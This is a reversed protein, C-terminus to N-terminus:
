IKADLGERKEKLVPFVTTLDRPKELTKVATKTIYFGKERAVGELSGRLVSLPRVFNEPCYLDISIDNNKVSIELEFLGKNEIDFTLFIHTNGKENPSSNEGDKDIWLEGFSRMDEVQMPMVYHLLPTYVGPATLMNQILANPDVLGLYKLNSNGLSKAMFDVLTELSTPKQFTVDPSNSLMTLIKNMNEALLLKSKEDTVSSLILRMRAILSNLDKTESFSKLLNNLEQMGDEPVVFSLLENIMRIGDPVNVAIDEAMGQLLTVMEGSSLEAFNINPNNKVAESVQFALKDNNIYNKNDALLADKSPFPVDSGEVFKDFILSIQERIMPDSIESLINQFSTKLPNTNDNFRSLNYKILSVINNTKETAILSKLVSDLLELTQGKLGEFNVTANKSSFLEALKSLSESLTTSKSLLESLYSLNSAVSNLIEEQAALTAYNRLFSVVSNQMDTSGNQHLTKLVDFMEGNFSTIGKEQAILDDAISDGTLFINKVFENFQKSSADLGDDAVFTSSGSFIQKLLNLTFSSDETIKINNALMGRGDSEFSNGTQRFEESRSNTKIVQTIDSINFVTNTQPQPKANASYSNATNAATIKLMDSM